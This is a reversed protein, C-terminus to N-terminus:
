RDTRENTSQTSMDDGSGGAYDDRGSDTGLDKQTAIHKRGIGGEGAVDKREEKSMDTKAQQAERNRGTQEASGTGQTPKVGSNDDKRKM